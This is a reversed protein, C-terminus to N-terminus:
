ASWGGRVSGTPKLKASSSTIWYEMQNKGPEGVRHAAPPEAQRHGERRAGAAHQHGRMITSDVGVMWGIEGDAVVLAQLQHPIQAWAWRRFLAYIAKGPDAAPRSTM